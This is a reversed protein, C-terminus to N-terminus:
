FTLRLGAEVSEGAQPAFNRLFSTSLRIEEDSINKLKLFALLETGGSFQLNYDIGGDWRTYGETETEFDGPNDQDSANLVRVYAGLSDSRWSLESGVRMPPLRPVDGASDFEGTIMDGFIGLALNGGALTALDFSSEFEVGYFDADDQEYEYVPTEDVEGGTNLLFIYDSLSNYFFTLEAFSKEGQWTLSLDGNLSVETDLNPDGIEIIGTAAHTVLEEESNNLNSFLEETSPARESRSLSVGLSLSENIPYLASGSLSHSTFDEELGTAPDREVYDLRGGAEFQWDGAHFDQVYFGGWEVSDTEPVYAEEGIASFEDGKFQLGLVGHNAGERVLEMRGEYTERSFQTGIETGELEVHEYDTYTLYARAVDIFGPVIDHMHLQTDYREQQLNIRIIEEEEEEEGHEEGEHEEGEHEEEHGHEHAGPPIGYNTEFSNYSFGIFDREGFHYSGGINFVDSDGNSNAIFGDSNEFEEEDHEEGEHDEDHGGLLEEQMEVAEEDIALGPISMDDFDRFTGSVHFAFDGAGGELKLVGTNMEPADDYRYEVAGQIGDIRKAPIRNDITNIVGGIAGGGYLLTSPGRLVEVTEALMPEIGVAHDPSLSSVDGAAIANSLNVTRPGAQGRIVPRGVGPGFSSNSIGPKDGLTEGLTSSALRQLEDGSLVTVPLATEAAKKHIPVTVLVHELRTDPAQAMAQSAAGICAALITRKM